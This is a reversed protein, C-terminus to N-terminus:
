ASLSSPGWPSWECLIRARLIGESFGEGSLGWGVPWGLVSKLPSSTGLKGPAWDRTTLIHSQHSGWRNRIRRFHGRWEFRTRRWLAWTSTGLWWGQQREWGQVRGWCRRRLPAEGGLCGEGTRGVEGEASSQPRRGSRSGSSPVRLWRLGLDLYRPDQPRSQWNRIQHSDLVGLPSQSAYQGSDSASCKEWDRNLHLCGIRTLNTQSRPDAKLNREHLEVVGIHHTSKMWWLFVGLSPWLVPCCLSISIGSIGTM